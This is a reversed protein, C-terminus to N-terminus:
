RLFLRFAATLVQDAIKRLFAALGRKNALAFHTLPTLFWPRLSLPGGCPRFIGLLLAFFFFFLHLNGLASPLGYICSFLFAADTIM